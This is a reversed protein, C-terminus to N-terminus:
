SSQAGSIKTRKISLAFAGIKMDQGIAHVLSRMYTGSSCVVRITMKSWMKNTGVVDPRSFLENWKKKIEDQRFDGTVLNINNLIRTQLERSSIVSLDDRRIQEISYIEVEKTPMEEPLENKRALEHLQVGSVTKSSYAPYEQTFRGVYKSLDVSLLTSTSAEGRFDTVLGLADYTDTSIGFVIEVEYEKDLGLYTEKYKCEDGSLILLEGEALPDLRGAYTMPVNELDPRTARFRELAELPTEGINKYIVIKSEM